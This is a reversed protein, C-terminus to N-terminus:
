KNELFTIIELVVERPTSAGSTINIINIGDFSYNKIDELSNIMIANNKKKAIQYLKKTNSSKLDGVIIFLDCKPADIVAKQRLTTADCISNSIIVNPNIEKIKDHFDSLEYLSMTTQNIIFSKDKFDYNYIDDICSILKIDSSIGIAGECEAHGKTGIYYVDYGLNLFKIIDKHTNYVYQCTADIIELNKEKCKLLVKPSVGHASIIVKAGDPIYELMELRTLGKIDITKIGADTLKKIMIDNHILSGLAYINDKNKFELAKNIALIVGKCFGQPVIKNVQM